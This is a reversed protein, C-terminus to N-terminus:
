KRRKLKLKLKKLKKLPSILEDLEKIAKIVIGLADSTRFENHNKGALLEDSYDAIIGVHKLCNDNENKYNYSYIDTKRLLDLASDNYKIVNKKRDLSSITAICCATIINASVNDLITHVACCNSNVYIETAWHCNFCNAWAVTVTNNFACAIGYADYDKASLVSAQITANICTAIDIFLSTGNSGIKVPSLVNTNGNVFCANISSQGNVCADTGGTMVDVYIYTRCTTACSSCLAIAYRKMVNCTTNTIVLTKVCCSGVSGSSISCRGTYRNITNTLCQFCHKGSHYTYSPTTHDTLLITNICCGTPATTQCLLQTLWSFPLENRYFSFCYTATSYPKFVLWLTAYGNWITGSAVTMLCQIGCAQTSYASFSINMANNQMCVVSTGDMEINMQQVISDGMVSISLRMRNHDYSAVQFCGIRIYTTQGATFAWGCTVRTTCGYTKVVGNCASILGSVCLTGSIKQPCTHIQYTADYYDLWGFVGNKYQYIGRNVNGSGIEVGLTCYTCGCYDNNHALLIGRTDTGVPANVCLGQRTLCGYTLSSAACFPTSSSLYYTSSDQSNVNNCCVFSCILPNCQGVVYTCTGFLIGSLFVCRYLPSNELQIAFQCCGTCLVVYGAKATAMYNNYGASFSNILYCRHTYGAFLTVFLRDTIGNAGSAGRNFYIDGIFGNKDCCGTTLNAIPTGLLVLMCGGCCATCVFPINVMQYCANATGNNCVPISLRDAGLVGSSNLNNLYNGGAIYMGSNVPLKRQCCYATSRISGCITPWATGVVRNVYICLCSPGCASYLLAGVETTCNYGGSDWGLCVFGCNETGGTWVTKEITFEMCDTRVANWRLSMGTWLNAAKYVIVAEGQFINQPIAFLSVWSNFPVCSWTCTRSTATNYQSGSLCCAYLARYRLSSTGLDITNNANPNIAGCITSAYNGGIFGASYTLNPKLCTWEADNTPEATYSCVICLPVSSILQVQRWGGYQLFFYQSCCCNYATSAISIASYSLGERILKHNNLDIWGTETYFQYRLVPELSARSCKVYIKVWVTGGSASPTSLKYAFCNLNITTNSNQNLNFSCICTAETCLTITCNNPQVSNTIFGADNQLESTKTPVNIDIEVNCKCNLPFCCLSSGNRKINVSCCSGGGYCGCKTCEVFEKTATSNIANWQEQTFSSNNLTYEYLWESGNWKYRDYAITNGFEDKEEIFAYDNNTINNTPLEATSNFTGIFNATNTAISSNVWERDALLNESSAASPIKDLILAQIESKSYYRESLPLTETEQTIEDTIIINNDDDLVFSYTTDKLEWETPIGNIDTYYLTNNEFSYNLQLNYVLTTLNELNLDLVNVRNELVKISEKNEKIAACIPELNINSENIITTSSNKSIINEVKGNFAAEQDKMKRGIRLLAANIDQLSLNKVLIEM